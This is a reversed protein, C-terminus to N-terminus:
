ASVSGLRLFFEGGIEFYPEELQLHRAIRVIVQIPTGEHCSFLMAIFEADIRGLNVLGVGERSLNAVMARFPSGQPMFDSTLAIAPAVLSQTVRASRRRELQAPSAPRNTLECAKRRQEEDIEPQGSVDFCRDDLLVSHPNRM